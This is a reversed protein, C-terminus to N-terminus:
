MRARLVALAAEVSPVNSSGENSKIRHPPPCHPPALEQRSRYDGGQRDGQRDRSLFRGSNSYQAAAACLGGVSDILHRPESPPILTWKQAGKSRARSEPKPPYATARRANPERLHRRTYKACIKRKSRVWQTGPFIVRSSFANQNSTNQWIARSRPTSKNRM